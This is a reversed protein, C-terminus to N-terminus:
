PLIQLLLLPSHRTLNLTETLTVQEDVAEVAIVKTPPPLPEPDPVTPKTWKEPLRKAFAACEPSCHIFCAQPSSVAIIIGRADFTNPILGLELKLVGPNQLFRM